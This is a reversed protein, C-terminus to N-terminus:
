DAAAAAAAIAAAIQSSSISPVAGEGLLYLANATEAPSFQTLLAAATDDLDLDLGKESHMAFALQDINFCKSENMAAVVEDISLDLGGSFYLATAVRHPELGLGAESTLAAAIQPANLGATDRLARAADEGGIENGGIKEIAEAIQTQTFNKMKAVGLTEPKLNAPIRGAASM